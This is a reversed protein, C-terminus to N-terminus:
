PPDVEAIARYVADAARRCADVAARDSRTAASNEVRQLTAHLDRLQELTMALPCHGDILTRDDETAAFVAARISPKTLQQYAPDEEDVADEDSEIARRIEWAAVENLLIPVLRAEAM